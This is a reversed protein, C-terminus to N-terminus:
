APLGYPWRQTRSLMASAERDGVFNEAAQEMLKRGLRIAINGLHCATSSRHMSQVSSVPHKGDRVCAFFQQLQAVFPNLIWGTVTKLSEKMGIVSGEVSRSVELWGRDGEFRVGCHKNDPHTGVKVTVDGPFQYTLDM